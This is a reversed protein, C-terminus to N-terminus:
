RHIQDYFSDWIFYFQLDWFVDGLAKIDLVNVYKRRLFSLINFNSEVSPHIPIIPMLQRTTDSVQTRALCCVIKGNCSLICNKVTTNIQSKEYVPLESLLKLMHYPNILLSKTVVRKTFTIDSYDCSYHHCILLMARRNNKLISTIHNPLMEVISTDSLVNKTDGPYIFIADFEDPAVDTDFAHIELETHSNKESLYNVFACHADYVM